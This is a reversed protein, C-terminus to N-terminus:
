LAHKPYLTRAFGRVAHGSHMRLPCCVRVRGIGIHKALAQLRVGDAYCAPLTAFRRQRRRRHTRTSASSCLFSASRGRPLVGGRLAAGRREANRFPKPGDTGFPAEESAAHLGCQADGPISLLMKSAGDFESPIRLATLMRVSLFKM